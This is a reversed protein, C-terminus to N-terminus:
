KYLLIKVLSGAGWGRPPGTCSCAFEDRCTSFPWPKKKRQWSSSCCNHQLTNFAGNDVALWLAMKRSLMEVMWLVGSDKALYQDSCSQVPTAEDWDIDLFNRRVTQLLSRKTLWLVCYQWGAVKGLDSSVSNGLSVAVESVGRGMRGWPSVLIVRKSDVSWGTLVRWCLVQAAGPSGWLIKIPSFCVARNLSPLPILLQHHTSVFLYLKFLPTISTHYLILSIFWMLIRSITNCSSSPPFRCILLVTGEFFLFSCLACMYKCEPTKSEM